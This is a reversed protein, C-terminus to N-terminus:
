SGCTRSFRCPTLEPHFYPTAPVFSHTTPLVSREPRARQTVRYASQAGKVAEGMARYWGGGGGTCNTPLVACASAREPVVTSSTGALFMAFAIVAVSLALRWLSSMASM